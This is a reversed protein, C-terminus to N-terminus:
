RIVTVNGKKFFKENDFCTADLYYDYVGPMVPKGKFTGDWGIGPVHTEFVKEGWRDYVRLLLERITNGRVYLVDNRGDANPTFANPIFIEPEICTVEKVRIRVTDSNECGLEDTYTVVYIIDQNSNSVPNPITTSNLSLPPAWSYSGASYNTANLQSTQGQFILEPVATAALPPIYDSYNVIVSDLTTCGHADTILVTFIGPCLAVANQTQQNAPDNWSYMMPGTGGSVSVSATGICKGNCYADSSQVNSELPPPNNLMVSASDTCGLSDIIIVMYTGACLGSAIQGTQNNPDNWLFSFPPTGNSLNAIASGDCDDTCSVPNNETASVSVQPVVTVNKKLTDKCGFDSTATLTVQYTGPNNYVHTPDPINSFTGDGFSWNWASTTGGGSDIVADFFDIQYSCPQQFFTFDIEFPKYFHITVQTTDACASNISSHAILTVTYTGTDPYTYVPNFAHSTDALTAPDGFNWFYSSAGTSQNTFIATTNSCNILPTQIAAVVISPCPVVNLQYDRRTTSIHVGNRYEKACVGIVFQGITNPKCTLLGTVPDIALPVGGILNSLNFPPQWQITSYPPNFPPSPVPGCPQPNAGCPFPQAGDFPTCLEYAISDQDDDIASHDFQFPVNLCIFPPPLEAPINPPHTKIFRPNSNQYNATGPITAYITIGHDLPDVINLISFNRCCRQYVLQYGGTAPPLNAAFNYYALRYCVNTPPILCPSNITPPITVSDPQVPVVFNNVLVNNANFVGISGPNDFPPVGTACDRYVVLTIQYSNGGIYRYYLEGGVIHTAQSVAPIICVSLFMLASWRLNHFNM